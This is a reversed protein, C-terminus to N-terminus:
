LFTFLYICEAKQPERLVMLGSMMPQTITSDM